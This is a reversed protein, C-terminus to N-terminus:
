WELEEKNKHMIIFANEPKCTPSCSYGWDNNFFYIKHEGGHNNKAVIEVAKLDSLDSSDYVSKMIKWKGKAAATDLRNVAFDTFHYDHNVQKPNRTVMQAPFFVPSFGDTKNWLWDETSNLLHGYKTCAVHAFKDGPAPLELVAKEPADHCSIVMANSASSFALLGMALGMVKFM